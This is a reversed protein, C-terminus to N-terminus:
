TEKIKSGLIISITAMTRRAEQDGDFYKQVWAKDQMLSTKKHQALNYEQESVPKGARVQELVDEGVGFGRFTNIRAEISPDPALPLPKGDADTPLLSEPIVIGQTNHIYWNAKIPTGGGDAAAGDAAAPAPAPTETV